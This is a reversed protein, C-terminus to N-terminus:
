DDFLLVLCAEDPVGKAGDQELADVIDDFRLQLSKVSGPVGLSISPTLIAELLVRMWARLYHAAEGLLCEGDGPFHDGEHQIRNRLDYCLGLGTMVQDHEAVVMRLLIQKAAFASL